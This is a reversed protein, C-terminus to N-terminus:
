DELGIGAVSAKTRSQRRMRRFEAFERAMQEPDEPDIQEGTTIACRFVDAYYDVVLAMGRVMMELQELTLESNQVLHDHRIAVEGDAPDFCFRLFRRDSTARLCALQVAPFHEKRSAVFCNPCSVTLITGSVALSIVVLVSTQGVINRYDDTGFCSLIMTKDENFGHRIGAHDLMASIKEITVPM